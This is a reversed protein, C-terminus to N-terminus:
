FSYRLGGSIAGQFGYIYCGLEVFGKLHRGGFDIGVPSLQYAVTAGADTSPEGGKERSAEVCLGVALKTYMSVNPYSFWAFKVAPMISIFNNHTRGDRVRNVSGDALTTESFTDWAFYEYGLVAGVMINRHVRRYYEVGFEGPMTIEANGKSALGVIAGGLIGIASPITYFGYQVSIENKPLEYGKRTVYDKAMLGQSLLLLCPLLFFYRKM